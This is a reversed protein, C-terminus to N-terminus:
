RRERNKDAWVAVSALHTMAEIVKGRVDDLEQITLPKVAPRDTLDKNLAKIIKETSLMHTAWDSM